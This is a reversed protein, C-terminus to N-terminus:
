RSNAGSLIIIKPFINYLISAKPIYLILIKINILSYLVISSWFIAKIGLKIALKTDKLL